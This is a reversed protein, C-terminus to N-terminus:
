LTAEAANGRRVIDGLQYIRVSVPDGPTLGDATQDAASYTCEPQDTEIVRVVTAFTDDSYIEVEYAEFAEVLPVDEGSLLRTNARSRRLWTLTVDNSGNRAAALACPSFPTVSGGTPYITREVFDVIRGGPSVVKYRRPMGIASPSLAHWHLGPGTLLVFREGVAHDGSYRATDGIGRILGSLRYTRTDILEAFRFGIIEDGLMARGAGNLVALERSSELEGDSLEVDVTNVNDWAGPDSDGLATQAYGITASARLNAVLAWNEGDEDTSEYLSAGTWKENPSELCAAFILGPSRVHDDSLAACDLSHWLVPLPNQSSHQTGFGLTSAGVIASEADPQLDFISPQERIGRVSLLGSPDRDIGLTLAIRDRGKWNFNARLGERLRWLMSPPCSFSIARRNVAENWAMHTAIAKAQSATLNINGLDATTLVANEATQRSGPQSGTQYDNDIDRFSVKVRSPAEDDGDDFEVRRPADSGEDHASLYDDSVDLDQADKRKFFHIVGDEEFTMAETAMMLPQLKESCPQPGNVLYGDLLDDLASVDLDPSDLGAERAILEIAEGYTREANEEIVAEFQPLANGFDFLQLGRFTVCIQGRYGPVAGTGRLATFLTDIPADYAGILGSTPGRHFDPAAALMKKNWQSNTQHLTTTVVGSAYSTFAGAGGDAYEGPKRIRCYTSGDVNAGADVVLWDGANSVPTTITLTGGVQIESLDSGGVPADLRLYYSYWILAPPGGFFTFFATGSIDNATIDIDPDENYLVKGNAFIKKVRNAPGRGFSIMAHCSYSYEVFQGGSGGKGNSTTTNQRRILESVDLVHGPVKVNAGFLEPIPAGEQDSNFALDKLGQPKKPNRGFLEPFLWASDVYAATASLLWANLTGAAFTAGAGANAIIAAAAITAM